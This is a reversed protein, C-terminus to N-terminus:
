EGTWSGDDHTNSGWYSVPSEFDLPNATTRITMAYRWFSGSYLPYQALSDYVGAPISAIRPMEVKWYHSSRKKSYFRDVVSLELGTSCHALFFEPPIDLLVGLLEVMRADMDELIVVRRRATRADSSASQWHKLLERPSGFHHASPADDAAFEIVCLRWPIDPQDDGNDITWPNPIWPSIIDNEIAKKAREQYAKTKELM